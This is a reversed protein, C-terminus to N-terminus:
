QANNSTLTLPMLYGNSHDSFPSVRGKNQHGDEVAGGQLQIQFSLFTRVIICRLGFVRSTRARVTFTGDASM